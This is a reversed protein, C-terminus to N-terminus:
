CGTQPLVRKTRSCRREQRRHIILDINRMSPIIRSVHLIHVEKGTTKKVEALANIFNVQQHSHLFDILYYVISIKHNVVAEQVKTADDADFLLPEAGYRQVAEAQEDSRVLAFLKGYPPLNASSLRALITGGLYGSAGTLLINHSM